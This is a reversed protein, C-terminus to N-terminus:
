FLLSGKDDWKTYLRCNPRLILYKVTDKVEKNMCDNDVVTSIGFVSYRMAGFPLRELPRGAQTIYDGLECWDVYEHQQVWAGQPSVSSSAYLKRFTVQDAELEQLREFMEVPTFIHFYDNMNLSIRLNFGSAKIKHCLDYVDFMLKSPIGNTVNNTLTDLASLSLSITSVGVTGALFKLMNDDLFIGSTQVEIWRFSSRMAWNLKAFANLFRRNSLPEGDGTLIVTNCGNDRAFELRRMYQHDHLAQKDWGEGDILNEYPSPHMQSVCFKCANPCKGTPVHVSLSQVEM